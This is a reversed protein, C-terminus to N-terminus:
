MYPVFALFNGNLNYNGINALGTIHYSKQFQSVQSTSNVVASGIVYNVNHKSLETNKTCELITYVCCGKLLYIAPSMTNHEQTLCKVRVTGREM